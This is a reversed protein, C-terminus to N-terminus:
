CPHIEQSAGEGGSRTVANTVVTLGMHTSLARAAETTTTGGGIAVVAEDAVVSAAASGIRRKQDRQRGARYRLPLEYDAGRAAAGGHTRALLSQRALEELIM